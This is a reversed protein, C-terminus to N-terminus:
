LWRLKFLMADRDDLLHFLVGREVDVTLAVLSVGYAEAWQKFEPTTEFNVRHMLSTSKIHQLMLANAIRYGSSSTVTYAGSDLPCPILPM